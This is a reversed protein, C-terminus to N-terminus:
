RKSLVPMYFFYKYDVVTLTVAVVQDNNVVGPTTSTIHLDTTYVGEELGSPDLTITTSSGNTGSTASLSAWDANSPLSANWTFQLSTTGNVKLAAQRASAGLPALYSVPQPAALMQTGFLSELTDNARGAFAYDYVIGPGWNDKDLWLALSTHQPFVYREIGAASYDFYSQYAQGLTQGQFLYSLLSQFASGFWNAYYGAAGNDMFPSAYMVVRRQAESSALNYEGGASGATFCGYLMVIANPALKIDRRIQDSPYLGSKLSFGGVMMPTGGWNIGHGRYLLFHAGNAAAKIQNWDNNPTYFTAVNVGHAKLENEALRMNAIEELTWSGTDGDIPGVILVAKLPPLNLVSQPSIYAETTAPEVGLPPRPPLVSEPTPTQEQGGTVPILSSGAGAFGALPAEPAACASVVTALLLFTSLLGITKNM